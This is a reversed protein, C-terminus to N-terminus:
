RGTAALAIGASWGPARGGPPIAVKSLDIGASRLLWSIVSDSTWMEKTGRVRRGWVHPPTSPALAVIRRVADCDGTLHIPEGEAWEEDPLTEGPVRRLQYRFLRIRDAGRIGVPGTALPPLPGGVFAPTLELTFAGEGALSLKLASHFLRARPRHARAAEISEWFRLSAQQFGSTGAGVPMWYLDASCETM